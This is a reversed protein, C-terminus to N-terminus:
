RPTTTTAAVPAAKQKDHKQHAIRHSQKDQAVHLHAREKKTVKGDSKAQDEKAQVRAQGAELRAAEKPTLAGSAEGQEIRREQNAQRQDVRPTNAHGPTQAAVPLAVAACLAAFSTLKM